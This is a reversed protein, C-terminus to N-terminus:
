VSKLIAALIKKMKKGNAHIVDPNLPNKGMFPVSLVEIPSIFHLLTNRNSRSSLDRKGRGMMIVVLRMSLHTKLAHISLMTHNITGLKNRAVLLVAPRLKLILDRILFNKGLPVMVGGAGEVILVDCRSKIRKIKKIVDELEIAVGCKEAAVYPAVPENFYYPNMESDSLEGPQLRQLIRVDRRGGTCFPKMALAHIKQRRLHSLLLATLVSKGVGTDTGTIFIIEGM